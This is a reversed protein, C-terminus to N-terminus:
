LLTYIYLISINKKIKAKQVHGIWVSETQSTDNQFWKDQKDQLSM